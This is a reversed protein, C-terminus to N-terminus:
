LITAALQIDVKAHTVVMQIIRMSYTAGHRVEAPRHVLERHDQYGDLVIRRRNAGDDPLAGILLISVSDLLERLYLGIHQHLRNWFVLRVIERRFRWM